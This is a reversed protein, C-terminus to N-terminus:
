FPVGDDVVVGLPLDTSHKVPPLPADVTVTEGARVTVPITITTIGGDILVRSTVAGTRVRATPNAVTVEVQTGHVTVARIRLVSDGKGYGPTAATMALLLFGIAITAQTLRMGTTRM